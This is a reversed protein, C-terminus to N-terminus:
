KYLVEAIEYVISSNGQDLGVTKYRPFMFKQGDDIAIKTMFDNNAAYERVSYLIYQEDHTPQLILVDEFMANTKIYDTYIEKFLANRKKQLLEWYPYTSCGGLYFLSYWELLPTLVFIILNTKVCYHKKGKEKLAEKIADILERELDHPSGDLDKRGRLMPILTSCIGLTVEYGITGAVYDPEHIKDDGRRVNSVKLIDELVAKSIKESLSEFDNRAKASEFFMDPMHLELNFKM